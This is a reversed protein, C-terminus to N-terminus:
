PPGRVLWSGNLFRQPWLAGLGKVGYAAVAVAVGGGLLALVLAEAVLGRAVRWRGAGLAVRVAAERSRDIARAALLGALNACAVLLLLIGAAGLIFLSQQAQPNVRASALSEAAGGRVATPDRAPYTEELARGVERMREDLTALSTGPRMRAVVRLWHAGADRVLRPSILAAGTRMPIWFRAAGSLGKFGPPGVGVVAVAQGNLTISRGVIGADDGFHERWFGHELVVTLAADAANDPLTFDRGLAPRLGLVRLYDPTVVEGSLYAADGEGTLTVSRRAYAASATVPLDQMGLMAEFKPYSWPIARPPSPRASSSDTLDLFVLREPDPFPPPALLTARLASFIATNGGIGLALMAVAAVAFGPSKRLKRLAVKLDTWWEFTLVAPSRNSARRKTRQRSREAVGTMAVDVVARIGFRWARVRGDSRLAAFRAQAAAVLEGGYRRRAGAPHLLLSLRLFLGLWSPRSGDRM